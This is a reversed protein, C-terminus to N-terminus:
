QEKLFVYDFNPPDFGRQQLCLIVQGRHYNEHNMLHFLIDELTLQGRYNWQPLDIPKEEQLSHNAITELYDYTQQRIARQDAFLEAITTGAREEYAVPIAGGQLRLTIWREEAAISHALIARISAFKSTTIFPADFTDPCENLVAELQRWCNDSYRFLHVIDQQTM